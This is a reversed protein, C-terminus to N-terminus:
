RAAASEGAYVTLKMTDDDLWGATAYVSLTQADSDVYLGAAADLNCYGSTCRLM